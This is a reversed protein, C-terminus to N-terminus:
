SLQYIIKQFRCLHGNGVGRLGSKIGLKQLQGIEEQRRDDEM